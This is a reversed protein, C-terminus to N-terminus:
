TMEGTEMFKIARIHERTQPHARVLKFGDYRTQNTYPDISAGLDFQLHRVEQETRALTLESDKDPDYYSSGDAFISMWLMSSLLLGWM